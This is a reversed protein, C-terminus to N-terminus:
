AYGKFGKIISQKGTDIPENSNPTSILRKARSSIGIDKLADNIFKEEVGNGAYSVIVENEGWPTDKNYPPVGDKKRQESGKAGALAVGFRYQTYFDNNQLEPIVYTAPLTEQVSPLISGTVGSESIFEKARM